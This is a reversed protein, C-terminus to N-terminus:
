PKPPMGKEYELTLLHSDIWNVALTILVNLDTVDRDEWRRVYHTEDNGLWAARQAAAKVRPDDVYQGICAGLTAAKIAAADSPRQSCLYDKILFELGKRLGIGVLQTLGQIEAQAVQNRIEVFTPSVGAVRAPTAVPAPNRPALRQLRYQQGHAHAHGAPSRLSPAPVPAYTAIFLEACAHSTCRFTAQVLNRTGLSQCQLLIAHISRHCLPCTDPEDLLVVPHHQGGHSQAQTQIV